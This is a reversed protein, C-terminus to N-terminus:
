KENSEPEEMLAFFDWLIARTMGSFSRKQYKALEVLKEYLDDPFRITKTKSM